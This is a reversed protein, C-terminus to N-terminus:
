KKAVKKLNFRPRYKEYAMFQRAGVKSCVQSYTTQAVVWIQKEFNVDQGQAYAEVMQVGIPSCKVWFLEQAKSAMKQGLDKANLFEYFKTVCTYLTKRVREFQELQAVYKILFTPTLQEPNVKFVSEVFDDTGSFYQEGSQESVQMGVCWIASMGRQRKSLVLRLGRCGAQKEPYGFFALVAEVQRWPAIKTQARLATIKAKAGNGTEKTSVSLDCDGTEIKPYEIGSTLALGQPTLRCFRAIPVLWGMLSSTYADAEPGIEKTPMDEWPAKGIRKKLFSLTAEDFLEESFLNLRLSEFVDVGLAFTHLWGRGLAPLPSASKKTYGPTFVLEKEPKKGGMGFTVVQLLAYVVDSDSLTQTMENSSFLVTANGYCIGPVFAELPFFKKANETTIGPHQLFPHEEDFLEFQKQHMELYTLVKQRMEKVTLEEYDEEMELPCAQYTIALLLRFVILRQIPTGGLEPAADRDFFDRLSATQNDILKIWPDTVLNFSRFM